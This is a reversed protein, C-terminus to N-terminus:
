SNDRIPILTRSSLQLFIADMIKTTLLIERYPIPVEIDKIISRYFSEMLFKKSSDEHFNRSLFLRLNEATNGAYQRAIGMPAIFKEAYSKLRVGRLKLLTQQDEDLLLGNKQGYIRFQHISPRMQSSFTFYATTREEDSIIVRLEDLIENEGLSKLFPSTYGVAMVKPNDVTLFEVIKAIGHTIINQLLGGPLKRIWHEKDAILAKAYHGALEYGWTSEMHVAPGGLYGKGIVERMRLSAHTFQGNHGATLKLGKKNALAILKDAESLDLTFPKEVYVHCGFDLCLKTLDYHSQTPTTIHVVDPRAEELLEQLNKFYRRVPFRECLQKAMLEESDCVGVIECGEIRKIQSAHSDAIKGCGVIAVKLM